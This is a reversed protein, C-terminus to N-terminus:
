STGTPPASRRLVTRAATLLATLAPHHNRPLWVLASVSPPLDAVSVYAVGPRPYLHQAATPLFTIAEGRAVTLLMSEIDPAVPGFRVSAGDPRPNVVWDDWWLRPAGAPVDVVTRGSLQALCIQPEGALPDGAPLCAMRPETALHLTRFGPPLPPRLFAVDIDGRALGEIQETFDVSHIEFTLHPHQARLETLIAQTYPMAAEAGITGITLHGRLERSHADATRRIRDLAAIVARADPILAAGTDTLRVTRSTRDLLAVGLRTELTRIQQSFSPQTVFSRAAARGFHLEEALVLFLRLQHTTPEPRSAAPMAHPESTGNAPEM